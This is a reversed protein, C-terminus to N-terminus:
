FGTQFGWNVSAGGVFTSGVPGSLCSSTGRCSSTITYSVAGVYVVLAAISSVFGTGVYEKTPAFSGLFAFAATILVIAMVLINLLGMMRAAQALTPSSTTDGLYPEGWLSWQISATFGFASGDLGWWPLFVSIIALTGALISILNVKPFAILAKNALSAAM